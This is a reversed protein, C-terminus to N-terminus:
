RGLGLSKRGRFESPGNDDCPRRCMAVVLLWIRVCHCGLVVIENKGDGVVFIHGVIAAEVVSDSGFEGRAALLSFV